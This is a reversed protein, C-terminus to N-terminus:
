YKGPKLSLSVAGAGIGSLLSLLFLTRFGILGLVAGAAMPTFMWPSILTNFTGIYKSRANDPSIDLMYSMSGVIIGNLASAGVFFMIWLSLIWLSKDMHTVLLATAPMLASLSAGVQIIKQNGYRRGLHGWVTNPLIQGLSQAIAFVGAYYPAIGLEKKAYLIYFPLAGSWLGMFARVIYLNRYNKDRALLKIGSVIFPLLPPKESESEPSRPEEVLAFIFLAVSIIFGAIAFLVTFNKPFDMTKLIVKAAYGGGIALIGGVGWRISFLLARSHSRVTKGIIDMAAVGSIGGAVAYITYILLLLWLVTSSGLHRYNLIILPILAITAGRIVACKIYLPKKYPKGDILHASFIQPLFWGAKGISNMLGVLTSSSTLTKIFLPLITNVEIFVAGFRFLIGNLAILIFNKEPNGKIRAM